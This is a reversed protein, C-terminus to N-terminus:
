ENLFVIIQGSANGRNDSDYEITLTNVNANIYAAGKFKGSFTLACKGGEAGAYLTHGLNVSYNGESSEKSFIYLIALKGYVRAKVTINSNDVWTQLSSVSLNNQKTNNLTDITDYVANSTVPNMDGDRVEDVVVQTGTAVDDTLIVTYGDPINSKQLEYEAKTGIWTNDSSAYEVDKFIIKSM